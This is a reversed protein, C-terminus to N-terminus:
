KECWGKSRKAIRVVKGLSSKCRERKRDEPSECMTTDARETNGGRIDVYALSHDPCLSDGSGGPGIRIHPMWCTDGKKDPHHYTVAFKVHLLAMFM